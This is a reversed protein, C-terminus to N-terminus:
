TTKYLRWVHLALFEPSQHFMNSTPQMLMTRSIPLELPPDQTLGRLIPFWAQRPWFPAVLLLRCQSTERFKQLVQSLIQTPPYAYADMGEWSMSLADIDLAERDPVPSVFAACKKNHRTAFLDVLPSGWHDFILRVVDPHLSWETPLVQGRRSLGDAIVNLKGPIYRAALTVQSTKVVEFLALTEKWLTWSKTGGLNNVYAVVTTNDTAGLVSSGPPLHFHLLALRVARMELVNLHLSEEDVSWLGQCTESELHARWGLNSADTFLRHSFPPRKLSVGLNLNHDQTWWMLM